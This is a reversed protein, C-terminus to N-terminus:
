DKLTDRRVQLMGLEVATAALRYLSKFYAPCRVACVMVGYICDKLVIEEKDPVKTVADGETAAVRVVACMDCADSSSEGPSFIDMEEPESEEGTCMVIVTPSGSTSRFREHDTCSSTSYTTSSITRQHSSITTELSSTPVVPDSTTATQHDNPLPETSAPLIPRQDRTVLVTATPIPRTSHTVNAVPETALPATYCPESIISVPSNAFLVGSTTEMSVLKTADSESGDLPVSLPQAIVPKSNDSPFSVPGHTTPKTTSPAVSVSQITVLEDITVPAGYSRGTDVPNPTHTKVSIPKAIPQSSGLSVPIPENVVQKTNTNVPASTALAISDVTVPAAAAPITSMSVTDVMPVPVPNTAVVTTTGPENTAYVTTVSGVAVSETTIPEIIVSGITVSETTIPATIVSGITVSETTIPGTIVSGITVSETTIPETIVSGITASETTIPEIFSSEVSASGVTASGITILGTTVPGSVASEVTSLETTVLGATVSGTTVLGTTVPTAVSREGLLKSSCTITISTPLSANDGISYGGKDKAQQVVEDTWKKLAPYHARGLPVVKIGSLMTKIAKIIDDKKSTDDEKEDKSEQRTISIHPLLLKLAISFLQYHVQCTVHFVM